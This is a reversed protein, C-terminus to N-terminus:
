LARTGREGTWVKVVDLLETVFIKGYGGSEKLGQSIAEIANELQADHVAVEVRVRRFLEQERRIGRFMQQETKPATGMVPIVTLHRFQAGFLAEKVAPLQEWRITASVIKM